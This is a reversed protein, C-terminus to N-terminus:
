RFLLFGCPGSGDDIAFWQGRGGMEIARPVRHGKRSSLAVTTLRAAARDLISASPTGRCSGRVILLGNMAVFKRRLFPETTSSRTVRTAFGPFKRLSPGKMEPGSVFKKWMLM